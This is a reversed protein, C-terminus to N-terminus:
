IQNPLSIDIPAMYSTHLRLQKQFQILTMSTVEKFHRHLSTASMNTIRALEEVKLPNTNNKVFSALMMCFDHTLNFPHFYIRIEYKTSLPTKDFYVGRTKNMPKQLFILSISNM